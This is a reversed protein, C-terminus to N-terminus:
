DDTLTVGQGARCCFLIGAIFVVLLFLDGNRCHDRIEDSTDRESQNEERVRSRYRLLDAGATSVASLVFPSGMQFIEELKSGRCKSLEFFNQLNIGM